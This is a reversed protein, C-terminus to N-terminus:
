VSSVTSLYRKGGFVRKKVRVQTVIKAVAGGRILVMDFGSTPSFYWMVLGSDASKSKM